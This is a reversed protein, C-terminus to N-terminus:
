QGNKNSEQINKPLMEMMKNLLIYVTTAFYKPCRDNKDLHLEMARSIAIKVKQPDYDSPEIHKKDKLAVGLNMLRNRFHDTKEYDHEDTIAFSKDTDNVM